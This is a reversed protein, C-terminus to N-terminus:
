VRLNRGITYLPHSNDAGGVIKAAGHIGQHSAHSTHSIRHKRHQNRQGSGAAETNDPNEGNKGPIVAQFAQVYGVRYGPAKGGGNMQGAKNYQFPFM